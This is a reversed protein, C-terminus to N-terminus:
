GEAMCESAVYDLDRQAFAQTMDLLERYFLLVKNNVQHNNAEIFDDLKKLIIPLWKVPHRMLFDRQARQYPSPDQSKQQATAERFALYHLFELETSLTDPLDHSEGLTSSLGFHNYFRVLEQMTELMGGQYLGERLPCPPGGPGLDFVRIYEAEFDVDTIEGLLLGGLSDSYFPLLYPLRAAAESITELFAGEKVMAIFEGSPYQLSEGLMRYLDSRAASLEQVSRVEETNM